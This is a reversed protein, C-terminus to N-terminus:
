KLFSERMMGYRGIIEEPNGSIEDDLVLNPILYDGEVRYTINTMNKRRRREDMKYIILKCLLNVMGKEM